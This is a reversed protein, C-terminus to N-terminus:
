WKFLFYPKNSFLSFKTKRDTLRILHTHQHASITRQASASARAYINYGALEYECLLRMTDEKEAVSLEALSKVHRKPVIMLHEAVDHMDWMDYPFINTIVQMTETQQVIDYLPTDTCFPCGSQPTRKYRTATSRYRFM